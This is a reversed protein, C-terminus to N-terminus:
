MDGSANPVLTNGSTDPVSAYDVVQLIALSRRGSSDGVIPSRFCQLRCRFRQSCHRFRRSRIADSDNNIADSADRVAGSDDRSADSDDRIADLDDRVADSNDSNADLDDPNQTPKAWLTGIPNILCSDIERRRAWAVTQYLSYPLSKSNSSHPFHFM